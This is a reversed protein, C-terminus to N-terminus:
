FNMNQSYNGKKESGGFDKENLGSNDEYRWSSSGQFMPAGGISANINININVNKSSGADSDVDGKMGKNKFNKKTNGGSSINRGFQVSPGGGINSKNAGKAKSRGKPGKVPSIDAALTPYNKVLKKYIKFGFESSCKLTDMESKLKEIM